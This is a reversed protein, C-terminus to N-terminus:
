EPSCASLAAAVGARGAVVDPTGTPNSAIVVNRSTIFTDLPALPSISRVNYGRISFEDGLFFREFIPM